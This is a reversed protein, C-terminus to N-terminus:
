EKKFESKDIQYQTLKETITRRSLGTLHATRGIHGRCKKLARRLYREEFAVTLESLQETLPRSLDVPLQLRPRGPKLIEAPLNEIRIEDDRTTVCAREMANELERINGPWTYHILTEMADPAIVRAPTGPRSFKEVFHRALV